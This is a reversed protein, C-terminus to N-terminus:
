RAAPTAALPTLRITLFMGRGGLVELNKEYQEYGEAAVLIKHAGELVGFAYSLDPRQTLKLGDLKVEAGVPDVLVIVHGAAYREQAPVGAAGDPPAPPTGHIYGPPSAQPYAYPYFWPPYPTGYYAGPPVAYPPVDVRMEVSHSSKESEKKLKVEAAGGCLPALLLTLVMGRVVLPKM